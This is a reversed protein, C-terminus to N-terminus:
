EKPLCVISSASFDSGINQSLLLERDTSFISYGLDEILECLDRPSLNASSLDSPSVEILIRPKYKALFAQAGQLFAVEAGQIDVKILDCRDIELDLGDLTRVPVTTKSTVVSNNTNYLSGM